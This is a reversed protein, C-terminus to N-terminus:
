PTAPYAADIEILNAHLTDAFEQPATSTQNAQLHVELVYRTEIEQEANQYPVQKPDDAYLPTITALAFDGFVRTAYQDRILTSIMQAFDASNPGHVDLQVCVESDLRMNVVGSQMKESIVTQPPNVAYVGVGGPAGSTQSLLRTPAIVNPGIVAAGPSLVGRQLATVPMVTGTIRATYVCDVYTDLNTSLRTFDPKQMVIFDDGPPEPTRNVQAAIVAVGTTMTVPSSASGASGSQSLNYTGPGGTETGLSYVFAGGPVGNGLVTDGLGLSGAKVTLVTLVTGALYGTFVASGSPLFSLLFARLQAQVASQNPTPAYLTM